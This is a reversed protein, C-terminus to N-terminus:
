FNKSIYEGNFILKLIIIRDNSKERGIFLWIFFSFLISFNCLKLFFIPFLIDRYVAHLFSIFFLGFSVLFNWISRSRVSDLFFYSYTIGSSFSFEIFIWGVFFLVCLLIFFFLIPLCRPRFALAIGSHRVM